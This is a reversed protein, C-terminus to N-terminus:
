SFITLEVKSDMDFNFMDKYKASFVVNFNDTIRYVSLKKDCSFYFLYSMDFM